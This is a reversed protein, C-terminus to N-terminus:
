SHDENEDEEPDTLNYLDSTTSGTPKWKGDPPNPFPMWHTVPHIFVDGNADCWCDGCHVGVWVPEDDLPSYVLVVLDSDPLEKTADRWQQAPSFVSEASGRMGVDEHSM